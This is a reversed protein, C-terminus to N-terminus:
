QLKIQDWLGESASVLFM